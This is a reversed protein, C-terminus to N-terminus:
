RQGRREARRAVSSQGGLSGWGLRRDAFRWFLPALLPHVQSGSQDMESARSCESLALAFRGTIARARVARLKRDAHCWGARAAHVFAVIAVPLGLRQRLVLLKGMAVGVASTNCTMLEDVPSRVGTNSAISSLAVRSHSAGQAM